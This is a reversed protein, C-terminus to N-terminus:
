FNHVKRTSHKSSFNVVLFIGFFTLNCKRNRRSDYLDCHDVVSLCYKELNVPIIRLRNAIENLAVFDLKALPSLNVEAQVIVFLSSNGLYNGFLNIAKIQLLSFDIIQLYFDIEAESYDFDLM